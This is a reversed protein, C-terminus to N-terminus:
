PPVALSSRAIHRRARSTPLTQHCLKTASYPRGVCELLVLRRAVGARM